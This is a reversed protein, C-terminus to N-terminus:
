AEGEINIKPNVFRYSIDALLNALVFMVAAFLIGARVVPYNRDVISDYILQGLGQRSFIVEIFISGGLLNGLGVGLVAITPIIANKLAYKYNILRNRLGFARATRVYDTTLIELISARVLRALYGIWTIALAIAPLVLHQLISAPDNWEGTGVAPFWGLTVSFLLLLLLGAVYPPLTIMSVSLAGILNDIWSGPRIASLVGLPIGLLVALLLSSLALLITHPLVEKIQFSIPKGTIFNDGLDGQVVKGLFNIVQVAPPKDLDMESRLQAVLQESARPGLITKVPDGPVIYPMLSLLIIALLCVIVTMGLRKLIYKGM